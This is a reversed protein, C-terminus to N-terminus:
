WFSILRAFFGKKKESQKQKLEELQENLKNLTEAQTAAQEDIANKVTINLLQTVHQDREDMKSELQKIQEKLEKNEQQLQDFFMRYEQLIQLTVENNQLPIVNSTVTTVNNNIDNSTDNSKGHNLILSIDTDSSTVTSAAEDLNLNKTHNLVMMAKIVDIDHGNYVRHGRENRGINHGNSELLMAYKKLNVASLELISAAQSPTFYEQM